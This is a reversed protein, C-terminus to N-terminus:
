LRTVSYVYCVQGTHTEKELPELYHRSTDCSSCRSYVPPVSQIFKLIEVRKHLIPLKRVGLYAMNGNRRERCM